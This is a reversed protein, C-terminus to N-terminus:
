RAYMTRILAFFKYSLQLLDTLTGMSINVFTTAKLMAPKQARRIIMILMKKYRIDAVLWNHNYVVHGINESATILEQGYSCIMYFQVLCCIMYSALAVMSDLPVGISFQFALFCIVFSTSIFNILVPLGFIENITQCLALTHSHYNVVASLFDLDRQSQQAMVDATACSCGAQYAEIDRALKRFHMILQVTAACFLLDSALYGGLGTLSAFVESVYLPYYLWNDRWEFPVWCFFPLERVVDTHQLLPALFLYNIMPLCNYTGVTFAHTFAHMFAIRRYHSLHSQLEYPPQDKSQKPYIEYLKRMLISIRSRQRLNSLLKLISVIVFGMFTFNRAAQLFDSNEIFNVVVFSAEIILVWILNVLGILSYIQRLVTTFRAAFSKQKPADGPQRYIDDYAVIGNFSYWFNATSMFAGFEIM